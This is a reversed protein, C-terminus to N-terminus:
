PTGADGGGGQSFNWPSLISAAQGSNAQLIPEVGGLLTIVTSAGDGAGSSAVIMVADGKQFDGLQSAPLRALMQQMDGSGNRPPGGQVANGTNSAEGQSTNAKGPPTGSPQGPASAAGGNPGPAAGKLRMAIAQAAREPLKRMQSEATVKLDVRKKTALDNVTLTGSSPDVATVLGAINRFSGSVIEDAAFENGDPTRTGRARLQDGAKIDSLPAVKADDFNVSGPAYRRLITNKAIHIVIDRPGSAGLTKITVTNQAADVSSVLGGIGHRQWEEREKQQKAAIDTKSMAVISSAVLSNADAGPKTRVLIRDGPQLDTLRIPMAEKLDKAGPPVRVAKVDSPLQIKVEAGSDTTLTLSDATISKITGLAPPTRQPPTQAQGAPTAM